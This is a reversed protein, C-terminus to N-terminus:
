RDWAYSFGSINWETDGTRYTLKYGQFTPSQVHETPQDNMVGRKSKIRRNGNFVM